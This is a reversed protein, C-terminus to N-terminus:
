PKSAETLAAIRAALDSQRFPKGLRPLGGGVDQALDAYGTILLVPLDPRIARAKRALEAGTMGPMLYDTVLLDIGDERSLTELAQHGSALEHVKHGLEALMDTTGMRVLEEDDVLLINLPRTHVIPADSGKLAGCMIEGAVPLWLTVTTGRGPLSDLVLAGNSQAALGDVMSLGLGTGKGIGKTSYFPEVARKLMEGDMGCGTDTIRLRIYHGPSLNKPGNAAAWEVEDAGIRLEGGGSMADRANVALNLIALELQNPDVQVAKLKSALDLVIKVQPGTSRAILDGMGYILEALDVARPELHQQRAFTLLRSILTRAREASQQARDILRQGRDDGQLKGRIIDLNGVIPTLLNNFDHAVGGTLRGIMELKQLEHLQALAMEREATAAQVREELTTTLELLAREAARQETVDTHVGVWERVVGNADLTPIARISFHRWEGDHRRVRHEFVFTHRGAVAANWAHITPQVDDPHVAEAWGFGQYDEYAQGTLAAWGPQEGEMLGAANNTWLIGQVADIAARFRHESDALAVEMQRRESIDIISGVHGLFTGDEGFRPTGANIVWRYEGSGRRLRYEIQFTKRQANAERFMREVASKDDPHTADLWGSGQCMEPTQQTFEYWSRSLYSCSGDPETVWVMGPANDAFNRFRAESERLSAEARARGVATRLREAVEQVIAVEGETWGRTQENLVFLVSIMRGDTLMPACIFAKTGITAYAAEAGETLRNTATDNVWVTRGARLEAIIDNGYDQLTYASSVGAFGPSAWIYGVLAHEGEADIESFGVSSAHLHRGLAESTTAIMDEPSPSTRLRDGLEGRFALRQEARVRETTDNVICLVGGIAGTEDRIASYSIDFVATERYGHREINFPRDKAFVTEGKMRVSRLLPELDEWLETWNEQAPRGLARPHKNGITAAYADNYLAIYDSGWFIVVQARAPLMLAIANKLAM